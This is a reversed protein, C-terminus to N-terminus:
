GWLHEWTQSLLNYIFLVYKVVKIMASMVSASNELTTVLLAMKPGHVAPTLSNASMPVKQGNVQIDHNSGEDFMLPVSIPQMEAQKFVDLPIKLFVHPMNPHKLAAFPEQGLATTGLCGASCVIPSSSAALLDSTSPNLSAITAVSGQQALTQDSTQPNSSVGTATVSNLAPSQGPQASQIQDSFFLRERLYDVVPKPLTACGMSAFRDIRQRMGEDLSQYADVMNELTGHNKKGKEELIKLMANQFLEYGSLPPRGNHAM